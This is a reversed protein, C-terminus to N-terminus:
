RHEYIDVIINQKFTDISQNVVVVIKDYNNRAMMIKRHMEDALDVDFRAIFKLFISLEKEISEIGSNRINHENSALYTQFDSSKNLFLELDKKNCHRGDIMDILYYLM